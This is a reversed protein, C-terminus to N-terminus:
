IMAWQGNIKTFRGTPTDETTNVIGFGEAVINAKYHYTCRFIKPSEKVCDIKSFDQLQATVPWAQRVEDVTKHMGIIVLEKMERENPEESFFSEANALSTLANFLSFIIYKM